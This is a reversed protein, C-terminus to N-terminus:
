KRLLGELQKIQNQYKEILDKNNEKRKFDTIFIRAQAIFPNVLKAIRKANAPTNLATNNLMNILINFYQDMSKSPDIKTVWTNIREMDTSYRAASPLAEYFVSAISSRDINKALTDMVVDGVMIERKENGSNQTFSIKQKYAEEIVPRMAQAIAQTTAGDLKAVNKQQLMSEAIALGHFQTDKNQMMKIAASRFVDKADEPLNALHTIFVAVAEVSIRTLDRKTLTLEEIIAIQNKRQNPNSKIADLISVLVDNEMSSRTSNNRLLDSLAQQDEIAVKMLTKKLINKLSRSNNAQQTSLNKESPIRALNQLWIAPNKPIRKSLAKVAKDNELLQKLINGRMEGDPLNEMFDGLKEIDIKKIAATITTERLEKVSENNRFDEPIIALKNLWIEPNTQANRSILEQAEGNSLLKVLLKPQSIITEAFAEIKKQDITPRPANELLKEPNKVKNVIEKITKTSESLSSLIRDINDGNVSFLDEHAKNWAKNAEILKRSAQTQQEIEERQQREREEQRRREEKEKAEREQRERKERAQKEEPTEKKPEAAKDIVGTGGYTNGPHMILLLMIISLTKKM